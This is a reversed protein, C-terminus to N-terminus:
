KGAKGHFYEYIEGATASSIGNVEEIQSIGAAKSERIFGFHKMLNEKRKTGIGPIKDLESDFYRKKRKKRNYEIAFRHAENQISAVFRFLSETPALDVTKGNYVLAKTTHRDDKVMGCVPIDYGTDSLVELVANVQNKGGDIMILEPHAGFSEDDMRALRRGVVEAM